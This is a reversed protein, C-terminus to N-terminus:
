GSPRPIARISPTATTSVPSSCPGPPAPRGQLTVSGSIFDPFFPQPPRERQAPSAGLLVLVGLCLATVVVLPFVFRRM